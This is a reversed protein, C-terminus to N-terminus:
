RGLRRALRSLSAKRPPNKEAWAIARDLSRSVSPEHLWRETPYGLIRQAQESVFSFVFTEADAEWVIGEVSNVLDAFRQQAAIAEAHAAQERMLLQEREAHARAREAIESRLRENSRSLDATREQVKTELEDRARRLVRRVDLSGMERRNEEALRLPGPFHCDGGGNKVVRAASTEFADQHEGDINAIEAEHRARRRQAAFSKQREDIRTLAFLLARDQVM